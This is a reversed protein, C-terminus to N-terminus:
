GHNSQAKERKYKIITAIDKQEQDFFGKPYKTLDGFDNIDIEKIEPLDKDNKTIFNIIVSDNELLGNLSAIRIGNIVHESHTEIIVQVGISSIQSLFIGIRSQGSPHLHAEPNEVILITEPEALLGNIIIPLVYSIGFGVNTPLSEKFTGEITKSRGLQTANDFSAGPIIYDLWKRVQDFLLPPEEKNFLKDSHISLNEGSLIQFAHEGRYGSHLYPLIEYEYKLRPGIREACLYYFKQGLIGTKKGTFTDNLAHLEYRNSTERDGWFDISFQMVEDEHMTINLNSESIKKGRRVVEFTNGLELLFPGNLPIPIKINEGFKSREEFTVRSLLIAQIITSKGVSNSGALVTLNKLKIPQQGDFSKFDTIKLTQM